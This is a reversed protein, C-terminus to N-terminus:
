SSSGGGRPSARLDRKRNANHPSAAANVPTLPELAFTRGTVEARSCTKLSGGGSFEGRILDPPKPM